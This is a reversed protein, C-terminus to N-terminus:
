NNRIRVEDTHTRVHMELFIPKVFAKKCGPVDCVFRKPKNSSTTWNKDKESIDKNNINDETSCSDYQWQKEGEHRIVRAKTPLENPKGLVTELSIRTLIDAEM